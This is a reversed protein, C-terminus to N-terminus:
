YFLDFHPSFVRTWVRRIHFPLLHSPFFFQVKGDFVTAAFLLQLVYYDRM